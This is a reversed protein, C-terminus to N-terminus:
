DYTGRFDGLVEFPAWTAGDNECVIVQGDPLALVESERVHILYDWVGCIIPDIDALVAIM